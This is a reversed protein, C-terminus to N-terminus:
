KKDQTNTLNTKVILKESIPKENHSKIFTRNIDSKSMIYFVDPLNIRM